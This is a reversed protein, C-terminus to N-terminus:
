VPEEGLLDTVYDTKSVRLPIPGDALGEVFQRVRPDTPSSFEAPPGVAIFEGGYLMAIRDAIRLASQMDHTVVLSTAGLKGRLDIILQDIVSTAIPDLGASPEDYFVIEPDLAIARALGVRKRMGGSIQAPMLDEFDRLGVLELKMKVIMRVIKEDLDTHERLPLAVNEGVTMSSYLAGSQFLIGFRRRIRDLREPSACCADEGGIYVHGADPAYEGIITRLLTSKGCGSGGIIVLTEGRPVRLNINRLVQRGEFFKEIGRLELIPDVDATM